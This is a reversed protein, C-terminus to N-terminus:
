RLHSQKMYGSFNPNNPYLSRSTNHNDKAHVTHGNATVERFIFNGDQYIGLLSIQETDGDNIESQVITYGDVVQDDLWRAIPAQYQTFDYSKGFVKNGSEDELVISLQASDYINSATRKGVSLPKGSLVVEEPINLDRKECGSVVAAAMVLACLSKIMLMVTKLTISMWKFVKRL